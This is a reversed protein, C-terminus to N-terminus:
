LQDHASNHKGQHDPINVNLGNHAKYDPPPRDRPHLPGEGSRHPSSLDVPNNESHYRQVHGNLHLHPSGGLPSHSLESM